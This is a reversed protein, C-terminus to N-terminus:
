WTKISRIIVLDKKTKELHCKKCLTQGNDIAFRIEPAISFPTIHDAHLRGGRESCEVCTWNDRAFVAERWLRYEISNRIKKNKPTIGGKWAHNNKGTMLGKRSASIKLKQEETMPVGKNYATKGKTSKHYCDPSCSKKKNRKDEWRAAYFEKGCTICHRFEGIKGRGVNVTSKCSLSCFRGNGNKLSFQHVTFKKKCVECDKETRTEKSAGLCQRSCFQKGRGKYENQCQKCTKM